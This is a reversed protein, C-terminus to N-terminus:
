AAAGSPTLSLGIMEVVLDALRVAADPRGAAHAAAAMTSLRQPAEFLASLHSALAASTFSAHPIVICAGTAEFAGANASQHDDAAHPYPILISPRGIASLEAVTSAGSRGIVLHAAALRKPLDAFFPALEAVVGAAGYRARVHEIDEPRCQQVLRIRARLAAPLSLIAEPIVRSFSAAGQSGGFVLLDIIRGEGPARYPLDRLARVPERVPNGVLCARRDDATVYQTRAFSTAVRAAGGLVLRNAKGLVANQEHLLAPLRRLRAAILTPVSAYGGFGVVASPGIRGLARWADFLGLGLAFVATVRRRLSGTPSASHIYYIPRRSLAGQWQRGRSDTVLAFPLGRAELEGALAEAPFVHGGTGGTALVVPGLPSHTEAM